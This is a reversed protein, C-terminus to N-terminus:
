LQLQSQFTDLYTRALHQTATLNDPLQIAPYTGWEEPAGGIHMVLAQDEIIQWQSHDQDTVKHVLFELIEKPDDENFDDAFVLEGPWCLQINAWLDFYARKLSENDWDAVSFNIDWLLKAKLKTKYQLTHDMIIYDGSLYDYSVRFRFQVNFIRHEEGIFPGGVTLFLDIAQSMADECDERRRLKNNRDRPAGFAENLRKQYWHAM